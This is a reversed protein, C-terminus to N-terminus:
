LLGHVGVLRVCVNNNNNNNNGALLCVTINSCNSDVIYFVFHRLILFCTFSKGVFNQALGIITSMLSQEGHHYASLEAVSGALQAVKIEKVLNRKLCTYLVKRQGPKLGDVVSPISRENDLNSFLVLEKHVFDHYTIARTDKGYLYPEPLGMERRRKREETFNTLWNKRDSIKSKDFALQISGDDETGSYRFRIRHRNMDSFYEKAEKSTSTGLGLVLSYLLFSQINVIM